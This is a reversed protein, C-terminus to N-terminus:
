IFNCIIIYIVIPSLRYCRNLYSTITLCRSFLILHHQYSYHTHLDISSMFCTQTPHTHIWGLPFLSREDQVNFIEEEDTTQCSDSTSEQKPIILTTVVFTSNKLLGALVGCTELNKTTNGVALKLFCELMQVPVHLKQYTKSDGEHSLKPLGPRPDAVKSPSISCSESHVEAFVPPISPQRINLQLFDEETTNTALSCSGEGSIPWSGDDLSLVSDMVSNRGKLYSNPLIAPDHPEGQNLGPTESQALDVYSPYQVRIGSIPGKWQGQLGDPGLISHKSLTEEKPYPLNLTLKKFQMDMQNESWKVENREMTKKQLLDSAFRSPPQMSFSSSSLQKRGPDFSNKDLGITQHTSGKNIEDVQHQVLPKLAELENIVDLLKKRFAAKEKSLLIQYDRHSPITECMLSSFRLLIIYLDILNKEERYISAQRLLNEAIRYYYDLSIRNDVEVKQASANINIARVASRAKGAALMGRWSETTM